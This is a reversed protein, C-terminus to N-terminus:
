EAHAALWDLADREWRKVSIGINRTAQLATFALSLLSSRDSGQYSFRPSYKLQQAVSHCRDANIEPMDYVFPKPLIVSKQVSRSALIDRTNKSLAM